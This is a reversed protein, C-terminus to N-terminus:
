DTVFSNITSAATSEKKQGDVQNSLENDL